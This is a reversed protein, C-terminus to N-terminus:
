QAAAEIRGMFPVQVDGARRQPPQPQILNPQQDRGSVRELIPMFHCGEGRTEGRGACDGVIHPNHSGGYFAAEAGAVSGVRNGLKGAPKGARPEYPQHAGVVERLKRAPIAPARDRPRHRDRDERARAFGAASKGAVRGMGEPM